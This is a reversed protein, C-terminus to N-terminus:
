TEVLLYLTTDSLFILMLFKLLETFMNTMSVSPYTCAETVEIIRQHSFVFVGYGISALMILLGSVLCDICRKLLEAHRTDELQTKFKNFKFSTKSFGLSLKCRELFNSDSSLELQREKLQLKKMVLRMEFTKLDNSRAQEMVSRELTSLATGNNSSDFPGSRQRPSVLDLQEMNDRNHLILQQNILSIGTNCQIDERSSSQEDRSSAQSLTESWCEEIGSDSTSNDLKSFSLVAAGESSYGGRKNPRTNGGGSTSKNIVQLTM